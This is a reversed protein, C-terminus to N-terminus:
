LAVKCTLVDNKFEMSSNIGFIDYLKDSLRFTFKEDTIDLKITFNYKGFIDVKDFEVSTNKKAIVKKLYKKLYEQKHLYLNYRM